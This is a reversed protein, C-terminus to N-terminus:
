LLRPSAVPPSRAAGRKRRRAACAASPKLPRGIGAGSERPGATDAGPAGLGVKGAGGSGEGPMGDGLRNGGLWSAAAGAGLGRTDAVDASMASADRGEDTPKTRLGKPGRVGCGGTWWGGGGKLGRPAGIARQPLRSM